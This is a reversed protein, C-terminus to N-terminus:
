KTESSTFLVMKHNKSRLDFFKNIPIQIFESKDMSWYNPKFWHAYEYGLNRLLAVVLESEAKDKKVHMEVALVPQFKILTGAAGKLARLEHGEVDLKIFDIKEYLNKEIYEDLPFVSFETNTKSSESIRTSGLNLPDMIAGLLAKRDSLGANVVEVNSALQSNLSLVVFTKRNPEFSVVQEFITSFFLSHNGINAGVDICTSLRDLNSKLFRRLAYLERKEFLGDIFIKRSIADHALCIIQPHVALHRKAAKELLFKLIYRQFIQM